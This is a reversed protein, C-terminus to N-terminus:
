HRRSDGPANCQGCDVILVRRRPDGCDSGEKGIARVHEIGQVVRGFAVHKGDLYPAPKLLIFFQSGNTNPGTNAMSLIGEKDHRVTFSEDDFRRGYISEQGTGNDRVVDGGQVCFRSVIRHFSLGKYHLPQGRSGKGKEGTCLARFNECTRPAERSFLEFVVRVPDDGAISIDMWCDERPIDNYRRVYRPGTAEGSGWQKPGPDIPRRVSGAQASADDDGLQWAAVVMAEFYADTDISASLGSYYAEFEELTVRGDPNSQSDFASLFDEMVEEATKRGSVVLPNGEASYTGRLDALDIVGSGDKDFKRFARHVVALRRPGLGGRLAKLFENIDVNGDQNTDLVSLLRKFDADSLDIGFDALGTRLEDPGLSKNGNDDMIRFQRSLARIGKGGARQLCRQRVRIVVDDDAAKGAM